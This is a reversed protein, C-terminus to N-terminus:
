PRVNEGTYVVLGSRCKVLNLEVELPFIAMQWNDVWPYQHSNNIAPHGEVGYM